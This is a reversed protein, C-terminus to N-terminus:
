GAPTLPTPPGAKSETRFAEVAEILNAFVRADPIRKMLGYTALTFLLGTDARALAFTIGRADLYDLLGALSVGASYDIDDLSSADLIVWRVPDPAHDVLAEVDDVFRNANAYFLEADYRFVVLGRASQHGPAASEYTPEGAKTVRVLFDKPKYQRRIIELISIIIAVVIGQEVGVAFVVVGTLAAIVFESRRRALIRKLGPIDILDVGILFVIGALVSKPMDKLVSTLFLVFLLVVGSMTLNALQTRGKQEDLIKTKTPSGNVVFTGTLGAAVNAGSLGTLDRNVDARDGHRMAFSRSTAASQAIILVFCSFALALVKPVDDWTIGSPLGIPPFGGQVSGVVAVGHASADTAASIIILLVVAVIAGPVRPLFRKFGLSIAVTAAAFAFTTWSLDPIDRIWDWQQSFWNGTGKPVGLMDPIQGSLVQIGVGTLFGVLVSASLFDGLFGLRLIRAIVLLGGCVLATLSCVAVWEPSYPTLGTIGVGVLGASLIAATASDAGVVLLKSSGLLAFAITPFIVTYLGTILPTQSISTYGMVEPIAVAALTLGAVIDTSLWAPRYSRLSVPTLRTVLAPV